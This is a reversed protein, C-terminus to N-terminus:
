TRVPRQLVRRQCPQNTNQRDGFRRSHGSKEHKQRNLTPHMPAVLCFPSFVPLRSFRLSSSLRDTGWADYCVRGAKSTAHAPGARGSLPDRLGHM